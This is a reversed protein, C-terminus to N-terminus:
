RARAASVGPAGFLALMVLRVLIRTRLPKKRERARCRPARTPNLAPGSGPPTTCTRRREGGSRRQGRGKWLRGVDVLEEAEGREDVAARELADVQVRDAHRERLEGEERVEDNVRLLLRGVREVKRVLHELLEVVAGSLARGAASGGGGARRRRRRVDRLFVESAETNM